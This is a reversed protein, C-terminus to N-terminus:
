GTAHQGGCICLCIKHMYKLWFHVNKILIYICSNLGPVMCFGYWHFVGMIYLVFWVFFVHICTSPTGKEHIHNTKNNYWFSFERVYGWKKVLTFNTSLKKYLHKNEKKRINGMYRTVRHIIVSLHVLLNECKM